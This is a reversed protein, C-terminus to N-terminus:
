IMQIKVLQACELAIKQNYETALSKHNIADVITGIFCLGGTFFYLIGMGYQGIIFRQLGALLVLGILTFLLFDGPSQRKGSYFMAFQQAQQDTMGTILQKVFSYEDPTIGKLNYLPNQDM